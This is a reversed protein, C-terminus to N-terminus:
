ELMRGGDEVALGTAKLREKLEEGKKINKLREEEEAEKCQLVAAEGGSLMQKSADRLQETDASDPFKWEKVEEIEDGAEVEETSQVADSTAGSSSGTGSGTDTKSEGVGAKAKTKCQIEHCSEDQDDPEPEQFYALVALCQKSQDDMGLSENRISCDNIRRCIDRLQETRILDGASDQKLLWGDQAISIETALSVMLEM